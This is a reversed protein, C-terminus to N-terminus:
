PVESLRHGEGARGRHEGRGSAVAARLQDAALQPDSAAVIASVVAIGDAGAGIVAASNQGNLGGIAVLPLQVADRVQALGELGLPPAADAKTATDYIPCVALYDAGEEVAAMAESPSHISVGLLRDPGLIRRADRCSLDQQGVHLGDAEAALVVDLRDNIVLPVSYPALRDRLARALDVYERTTCHKERLQVVTVGGVVAAEVIDFLERPGALGRDTVLYLSYDARNTLCRRSPLLEDSTMPSNNM